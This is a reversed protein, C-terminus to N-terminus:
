LQVPVFRGDSKKVFQQQTSVTSIGIEMEMETLKTGCISFSVHERLGLQGLRKEMRRTSYNKEIAFPLTPTHDSTKVSVIRHPVWKIKEPSFTLLADASDMFFFVGEYYAACTLTHLRELNDLYEHTTWETAGRRISNLVLTKSNEHNIVCVICDQSTPSSSIAAVHDTIESYPLPPLDIRARSFPCFFFVSGDIYVLLWGANSAICTAGELEPINIIFHRNQVQDYLLCKCGEGFQLFWPTKYAKSEIEASANFSASHWTKCISRFGLLEVIGLRCAIPELLDVHLESWFGEEQNTEETSAHLYNWVESINWLEAKAKLLGYLIGEVEITEPNAGVAAGSEM